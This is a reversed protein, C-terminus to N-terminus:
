RFGTFKRSQMIAYNRFKAYKWQHGFKCVHAHLTGIQIPILSALSANLPLPSPHAVDSKLTTSAVKESMRMDRVSRTSPGTHAQRVKELPARGCIAAAYGGGAVGSSACAYFIITSVCRESQARLDLSATLHMLDEFM